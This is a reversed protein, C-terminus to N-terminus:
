DHLKEVILKLVAVLQNHKEVLTALVERNKRVGEALTQLHVNWLRAAATKLREENLLAEASLQSM